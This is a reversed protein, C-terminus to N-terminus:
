RGIDIFYFIKLGNWNLVVSGDVLASMSTQSISFTPFAWMVLFTLCAGYASKNPDSCFM